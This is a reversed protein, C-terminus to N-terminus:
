PYILELFVTVLGEPLTIQIVKNSFEVESDELINQKKKSMLREVLKRRLCCVFGRAFFLLNTQREGNEYDRLLCSM